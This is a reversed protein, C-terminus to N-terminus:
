ITKIFQEKPFRIQPGYVGNDARKGVSLIMCPEATRPLELFNSVKKEDFGEMPCTDYGYARFALMLNQCALATSKHMWVRLDAISSNGGPLVKTFRLFFIMIRKLFGLVGCPGVTNAFYVIKKYYGYASDPVAQESQEFFEVMQKAHTRWTDRRAVCIILEPATRAAPQNLCFKAIIAKKEPSKVRYFEWPQLNSSNPAMLGIELCREMIKDDLPEDKYVRVSRRSQIVKEFELVDIEPAAETYDLDPIKSFIDTGNGSM